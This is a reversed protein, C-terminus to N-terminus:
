PQIPEDKLTYGHNSVQDTREVLHKRQNVHRANAQKDAEHDREM